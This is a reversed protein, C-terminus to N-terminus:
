PNTPFTVKTGDMHDPPEGETLAPVPDRPEWVEEYWEPESKVSVLHCSPDQDQEVYEPPETKVTVAAMTGNGSSGDLGAGVPVEETCVETADQPEIKIAVAAGNHRQTAESIQPEAILHFTVEKMDVYDKTLAPVLSDPQWDIGSLESESKVSAFHSGPEEDQEVYDPPETKITNASIRSEDSSGGWGPGDDPLISESDQVQFDDHVDSVFCEFCLSHHM